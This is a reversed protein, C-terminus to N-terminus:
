FGNKSIVIFFNIIIYEFLLNQNNWEIGLCAMAKKMDDARIDASTKYRRPKSFNFDKVIMSRVNFASAKLQYYKNKCFQEIVYKITHGKAFTKELQKFFNLLWKKGFWINKNDIIKQALM